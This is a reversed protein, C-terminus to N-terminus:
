IEKRPRKESLPKLMLMIQRAPHGSVPPSLHRAVVHLLRAHRRSDSRNGRPGKANHLGIHEAMDRPLAILVAGSHREIMGAAEPQECGKRQGVNYSAELLNLM